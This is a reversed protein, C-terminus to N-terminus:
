AAQQPFARASFHCFEVHRAAGGDVKEVEVGGPEDGIAGAQALLRKAGLLQLAPDVLVAGGVEVAHGIQRLRQAFLELAAGVIAIGAMMLSWMEVSPVRLHSISTPLPLATSVTNMGSSVRPVSHTDDCAPQATLQRKQEVPLCPKERLRVVPSIMPWNRMASNASRM